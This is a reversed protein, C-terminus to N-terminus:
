RVDGLDVVFTRLVGDPGRELDLRAGHYKAIERSIFLGLGKGGGAAKKTYFAEFVKDGDGDAIGPGNDTFRIERASTDLVLEIEASFAPDIRRAYRLWYVSNAILNELIQIVMGRVVTVVLRSSEMPLISFTAVIDERQFQEVHSDMIDRLLAPILVKEKRNRGSTSLPDLSSLRKQLVKLQASLSRLSAGVNAPLGSSSIGDLTILAAHTTRNLEHALIEVALGIGALNLLQTRGEEYDTALHRVDAMTKVLNSVGDRIEQITETEGHLEPVRAMLLGINRELRDEERALREEIVEEKVPERPPRDAKEVRNMFSWMTQQVLYALMQVLARREESDVLGERNAQDKLKPNGHSTIMVRGIIQQRNLKFGGRSLAKRDLGLWDDDGGGYPLIRFGDRYLMLGGTWTGIRDRVEALNGVGELATLKARNFYYLQMSFPGISRLVGTDPAETLSLLAMEDLTFDEIRGRYGAAGSLVPTGDSAMRFMAELKGHAHEFIWPEIRPIRIPVGNQVIHLPFRPTREFPDNIRAFDARAIEDAHARAWDRHLGRISVTTGRPEGVQRPPGERASLPIDEVLKDSDHDFASWDIDLVNWHADETMATRVRLRSGLRMASLRGIGKEGLLSREENGTELRKMAQKSRTGITLFADNLIDLSMGRGQDTVTIVNAEQVVDLLEDVSKSAVIKRRLDDLEKAGEVFGALCKEQLRILFGKASRGPLTAASLMDRQVARSIAYRVDIRVDPSGADYANKILEYLAIGDSSILEAGLHLITRAAIRFSM